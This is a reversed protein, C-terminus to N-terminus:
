PSLVTRRWGAGKRVFVERDHLRSPQGQWFEIREPIVLYGGWHPPRTVKRGDFRTTAEFLNIELEDRGTIETSQHSAWAGLQSGRDRTAFYRDSEARTCRSVRGEVRIQREFKDWHFVLAAFPKSDLESAKRSGYNTYFSFGGRLMGKFLVMRANPRGGRGVTALTMAEANHIGSERAEALWTEFRRIPVSAAVSSPSSPTPKRTASKAM